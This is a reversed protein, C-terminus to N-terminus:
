KENLAEEAVLMLGKTAEHAIEKLTRVDREERARRIRGEITLEHDTISVRTIWRRQTFDYLLRDSHYSYPRKLSSLMKLMCTESMETQQLTLLFILEAEQPPDLLLDFTPKFSLLELEYLRDVMVQSSRWKKVVGRVTEQFLHLQEQDKIRATGSSTLKYYDNM